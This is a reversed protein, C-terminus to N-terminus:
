NPSVGDGNPGLKDLGVRQCPSSPLSGSSLRQRSDNYRQCFTLRACANRCDVSAFANKQLTSM